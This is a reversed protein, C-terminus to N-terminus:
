NKFKAIIKKIYLQYETDTMNENESAELLCLPPFLVCWWNKGKGNGLTVVLSNYYGEKYEIGKYVKQPFYNLGYNVSYKLNSNNSILVNNVIENINELNNNIIDTAENTSKADKLLEFLYDQLKEKVKKKIEQDNYSNSSAIVRVRIADNPIEISSVKKISFFCLGLILFLIIIFKKMFLFWQRREVNM